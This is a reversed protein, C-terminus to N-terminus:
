CVWIIQYGRSPTSTETHTSLTSCYPTLIADTRCAELRGMRCSETWSRMEKGLVEVQNKTRGWWGSPGTKGGKERQCWCLKPVETPPALPSDWPFVCSCLHRKLIETSSGAGLPPALLWPPTVAQLPLCAAQSFPWRNSTMLCRTSPLPLLFVFPPFSWPMADFTENPCLMMAAFGLESGWLEGWCSQNCVQLKVPSGAFAWCCLFSPSPLSTGKLTPLCSSCSYRSPLNESSARPVLARSFFPQICLMYSYTHHSFLFVSSSPVDLWQWLFIWWPHSVEGGM